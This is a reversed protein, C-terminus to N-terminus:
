KCKKLVECVVEYMRKASHINLRESTTHIDYMDPGISICDLGELASSFVGCELGAHIAMREPTFGLIDKATECYLGQMVSRSNFEWPPYHGGTTIQCDVCEYYTRLKDEMFKMASKKNSRLTHLITINDNETKLIGLNLSTEVLNDIERSMDVVGNPACLVIYVLKRSLEEAIVMREDNDLINIEFTFDPERSSIEEKIIQAYSTLCEYAKKIDDAVFVSKCLLPIANGKDGGSYDELCFGEYDKVKQLIRAMLVNANVRGSNIEVGSHGGKLGRVAVSIAEKRVKKRELPINVAFDSGGACSITITEEGEMDMNIMRRGSLRSMDLDIAGLMGIEEDTTFVAELKPHQIEDSDLVALAYAVAIGNDAGLTTGKAKIFDGDIYIDLGDKEFDKNVGEDKQCVMDLHGQLIVAPSDEYGKTANKYIIVNNSSDQYYELNHEKAFEVCFESIKKTDGSGRPISSIKEFYEFVKQPKLGNLKNM